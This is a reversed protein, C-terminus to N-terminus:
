KSQTGIREIVESRSRVGLKMYLNKVHFKVTNPSVFLQEAIQANSQRKALGQMVELERESLGYEEVLAQLNQSADTKSNLKRFERIIKIRNELINKIRALFEAASFPKTLYDDIGMALAHLKDEQDARATLMVLSVQHLADNKKIAGLLEFGDMVPMMVDSIVIDITNSELIDLAVKGNEAQMVEFYPRLTQAIFVRMEPHDETILLVPRDIKFKRSYSNVTEKLTEELLVYHASTLPVVTEEKVMKFPLELTFSAGEGLVSKASLSGGHLHALEKALALGIGTGGEAKQNPQESQYYRDFVFPLDNPHIGVGNDKVIIQIINADDPSEQVTISIEDKTFKLANSLLNRIVKGCQNEDMLMALKGSPWFDFTLEINRKKFGSQYSNLIEILFERLRVPNEVLKLKGAELKGLDLIEEVLTLLSVGNNRATKLTERVHDEKIEGNYILSELPANILTLPTRLEHSINAFFRSKVKDLEKLKNAQEQILVKDAVAKEKENRLEETREFIVKELNLKDNELRRTNLKVIMWVIFGVLIAYLVFAWVTLYWPTYITFVYEDVASIDGYLNRARVKFTYTGHLLNTYNRSPKATWPAWSEESGELYSQFELDEIKDYFSASYEFHLANENPRLVISQKVNGGAYILSDGKATVHVSRIFANFGRSEEHVYGSTYHKIGTGAIWINGDGLDAVYESNHGAIRQFPTQTLEYQNGVRKLLTKGRPNLSGYIDGNEMEIFRFVYDESLLGNFKDVSVFSDSSKEYRYIGAATAFFLGEKHRFVRNREIEPLGDAEGYNRIAIVSDKKENLKIKFVGTGSDTMWIQGDETQELFDMQQNLGKIRSDYQWRNKKKSFLHLNGEVSGIVMQDSDMLAVAAWMREGSFLTRNGNKTIQLFGNNGASFFDDGKKVTMWVRERNNSIPQFPKYGNDLSQWPDGPGKVVIGTATSVYTSGEWNHFYLVYGDVGHRDDITTFPSNIIIQSIVGHQAIWLNKDKDLFVDEIIADNGMGMEKNLKQILRGDADIIVLGGTTTGLAFYRDDINEASFGKHRKLFDSVDTEWPTVKNFDYKFLGNSDTVILLESQSYRIVRRVSFNKLVDTGWLKVLQGSELKMLGQSKDVVFYTDDIVDGWGLLGNASVLSTADTETDYLILQNRGNFIVKDGLSSALTNNGFGSFELSIKSLLSEFHLQGLADPVFRGILSKAAGYVMGDAGITLGKFADDSVRSDVSWNQGDFEIVGTVNSIYILGDPSQVIRYSQEHAGYDTPLYTNIYPAGVEKIVLPSSQAKANFASFLMSLTVVLIVEFTDFLKSHM